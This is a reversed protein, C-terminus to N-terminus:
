RRRALVVHAADPLVRADFRTGEAALADLNPTTARAYGYASVHDARLADVSILVLDHGNWDLSRAVEGPAASPAVAAADAPAQPRLAMALTVAPGMLPAHEVLVIRLNAARELARLARPTGAACLGTVLAVAATAALLGRGPAPAGARGALAALASGLLCLALLAAHFAPYLRPLVYADATWAGLAMALGLAALALPRRAWGAMWPVAWRGAAAGALTVVVVFPARAGWSAFHRGQTVGLALAIAAAAGMAAFARAAGRSGQAARIALRWALATAIALPALIVVGIPEVIHRAQAIEWPGSFQERWLFGLAVDEAYIAAAWVGLVACADVLPPWLAAARSTRM